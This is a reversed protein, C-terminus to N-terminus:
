LVAVVAETKAPDLHSRWYLLANESSATNAATAKAKQRLSSRKLNPQQFCRCSCEPQLAELAKVLLEQVSARQLPLLWQWFSALSSRSIRWTEIIRRALALSPNVTTAAVSNSSQSGTGITSLTAKLQKVFATQVKLTEDDDNHGVHAAIAPAWTIRSPMTSTQYLECGYLIGGAISVVVHPCLPPLRITEGDRQVLLIGPGLGQGQAIPNDADLLSLYGATYGATLIACNASTPPWIAWVKAGGKLTSIGLGDDHHLDTETYKPTIVVSTTSIKHVLDETLNAPLLLHNALGPLDLHFISGEFCTDPNKPPSIIHRMITAITYGNTDEQM